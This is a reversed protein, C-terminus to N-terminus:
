GLELERHIWQKATDLGRGSVQRPRRRCISPTFGQSVARGGVGQAARQHAEDPPGGGQQPGLVRCQGAPDGVLCHAMGPRAPM